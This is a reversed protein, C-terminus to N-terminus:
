LWVGRQALQEKFFESFSRLLSLAEKQKGEQDLCNVLQTISQELEGLLSNDRFIDVAKQLYQKAQENEQHALHMIGLLHYSKGMLLGSDTLLSLAKEVYSIANADDKTEFYIVAIDLFIAARKEPERQNYHKAIELLKKVTIAPTTHHRHLLLVKHECDRFPDVLGKSVYASIAKEVYVSATEFHSRKESAHALQLYLDGMSKASNSKRYENLAQTLYKEYSDLSIFRFCEALSTLLEAKYIPDPQEEKAYIGLATQLNWHGELYNQKMSYARGKSFHLRSLLFRDQRDKDTVLGFAREIMVIAQSPESLSLYCEACDFMIQPKSLPFNPADILQEYLRIATIYDKSHFSAKALNYITISRRFPLNDSLLYDPSTDLRKALELLLNYSPNAKDSEIQSIMSPTVLGTGLETQTLGKQIRLERIRTGLTSM